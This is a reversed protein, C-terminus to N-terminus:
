VSTCVSTGVHVRSMSVSLTQVPLTGEGPSQGPKNTQCKNVIDCESGRMAGTEGGRIAGTEGGRIPGTEGSMTRIGGKM